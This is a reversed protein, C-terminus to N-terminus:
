GESEWVERGLIRGGRGAETRRRDVQEEAETDNDKDADRAQEILRHVEGLGLGLKTAQQLVAELLDRRFVTRLREPSPILQWAVDLTRIADQASPSLTDHFRYAAFPERGLGRAFRLEQGM